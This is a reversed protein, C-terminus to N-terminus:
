SFKVPYGSLVCSYICSIVHITTAHTYKLSGMLYIFAFLIVGWFLLSGRGGGGGGWFFGDLTYIMLWVLVLSCMVYVTYVNRDTSFYIVSMCVILLNEVVHRRQKLRLTLPQYINQMIIIIVIMIEEDGKTMLRGLCSEKNAHMSRRLCLTVAPGCLLSISFPRM